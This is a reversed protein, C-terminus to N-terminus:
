FTDVLSKHVTSIWPLPTVFFKKETQCKNLASSCDAGHINASVKARFFHLGSHERISRAWALTFGHQCRPCSGPRAEVNSFISLPFQAASPHLLPPPM